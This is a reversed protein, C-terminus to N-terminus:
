GAPVLPPRGVLRDAELTLEILARELQSRAREPDDGAQLQIPAGFAFVGRTFPLALLFRDWSGIVRARDASFTVPVIPARSKLAVRIVGGKARMLPGRPGDPTMVAINGAEVVRCAARLIGIGGRKTSAFVTSFGLRDTTRAMLRGDRHSSSIVFPQLVDEVDLDALLARWAPEIMMMRGHWFCGVFPRRARVLAATAEPYQITWRGSRQVLRIYGASLGALPAQVWPRHLLRTRRRAM